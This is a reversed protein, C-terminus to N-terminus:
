GISLLAAIKECTDELVDASAAVGAHATSGDRGRPLGWDIEAEPKLGVLMQKTTHRRYKKRPISEAIKQLQRTM